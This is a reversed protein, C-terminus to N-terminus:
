LKKSKIADYFTGYLQYNMIEEFTYVNIVRINSKTEVICM